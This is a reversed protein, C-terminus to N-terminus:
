RRLVLAAGAALFALGAVRALSLPVREIGFMGISDILAAAALQGGIVLGVTAFTGIRPPAFVFTFVVLAGLPGALWLWAPQRFGEVIGGPGRAALAVVLLITAGVVALFATAELVGIRRGFVGSIAAQFGGGIGAIVAVVIALRGGSM